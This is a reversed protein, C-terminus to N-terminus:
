LFQSVQRQSDNFYAPVTVVANKVSTGLYSESVDILNMQLAFNPYEVSSYCYRSMCVFIWLSICEAQICHVTLTGVGVIVMDYFPQM